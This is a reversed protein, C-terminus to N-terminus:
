ARACISSDSAQRREPARGARGSRDSRLRSARGARRRPVGGRSSGAAALGGELVYAEHGLQRLWPRRGGAGAGGRCRGARARAGRVGVWQDTAQILQGGPRTRSARCPAPPSSRPRACTSSIPRARRRRRALRQGRGARRICATRTPWSARAPRCSPPQAGAAATTAMAAARATSSSRPRGPVLGPHREGARLGSQPHRPRDADARRHHLPHPRRLQRRDQDRPRPRDRRHAAGARREPLLHRRPHEDQQFEAFPAATSSSSIRARTACPRCRRAGDRAAHAARARGARRVDQEARQRRCLAHLRREALRGCRGDPRARQPLRAGRGAGGRARCRRRRRRVLVLRVAPNPVLAPLGLEFRSYPLPVAFFLHGEGYQGHERVDLLAIERGDSLWAKLTPSDIYATM